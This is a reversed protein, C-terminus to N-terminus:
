KTWLTLLREWKSKIREIFNRANSKAQQYLVWQDLYAHIKNRYTMIFIYLLAFWHLTLLKDKTLNFLRAYFAIGVIKAILFITVGKWLFGHAICGLAYVKIPTLIFDPLIFLVLSLYPSLNRIKDEVVRVLRFVELRAMQRETLDWISELLLFVIALLVALPKFFFKNRNM